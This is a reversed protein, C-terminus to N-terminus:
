AWFTTTLNETLTSAKVQAVWKKTGTSSSHFFFDYFLCRRYFFLFVYFLHFIFTIIYFCNKQLPLSVFFAMFLNRVSSNFMSGSFIILSLLKHFIWWGCQRVVDSSPASSALYWDFSIFILAIWLWEVCSEFTMTWKFFRWCHVVQVLHQTRRLFLFNLSCIWKKCLM